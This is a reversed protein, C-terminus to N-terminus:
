KKFIRRVSNSIPNKFFYDLVFMAASTVIGTAASISAVTKADMKDEIQAAKWASDMHCQSSKAISSYADSDIELDAARASLINERAENLFIFKTEKVYQKEKSSEAWKNRLSNKKKLNKLIEINEVMSETSVTMKAM